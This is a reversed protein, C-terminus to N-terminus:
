VLGRPRAIEIFSEEFYDWPAARAEDTMGEVISPM